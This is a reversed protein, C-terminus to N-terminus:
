WVGPLLRYRVRKAYESYGSLEKQLTRDELATRVTILVASIGAPMLGFVSGIIFTISVPFIIGALYGPHRIIKYPGATVVQHDREKQIRVTPEFYRNTIVAWNMLVSAFVYLLVGIVAFDAGLTSWRFRGVDLGIVALQFYPLVVIIPMLFKDWLKTGHRSGHARQYILEPNFRYLIPISVSVYV